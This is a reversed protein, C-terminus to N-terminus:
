DEDSPLEVWDTEEEDWYYEGEPKPTDSIQSWKVEDENWRYLHGDNPYEVPPEWRATEKNLIWSDFPKPPIFADLEPDYTHGIGAYNKRISATYSTQIWTGGFRKVLWEASKSDDLVLVRVVVNNEDVEAWHAM